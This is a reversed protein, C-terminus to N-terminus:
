RNLEEPTRVDRGTGRTPTGSAAYDPRPISLPVDRMPSVRGPRVKTQELRVREERLTM